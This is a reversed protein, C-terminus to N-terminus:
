LYTYEIGEYADPDINEFNQKISSKNENNALDQEFDPKSDTTKGQLSEIIQERLKNKVLEYQQAKIISIPILNKELINEISLQGQFNAIILNAIALAGAEDKSSIIVEGSKSDFDLNPIIHKWSQYDNLTPIKIKIFFRFPFQQGYNYVIQTWPKEIIFTWVIFKNPVVEYPKGFLDLPVITDVNSYNPKNIYNHTEKKDEVIKPQTIIPQSFKYEVMKDQLIKDESMKDEPIKYESIKYEPIKYEPIKYESINDELIKDESIEVQEDSFALIMQNIILYLIVILLIHNLM